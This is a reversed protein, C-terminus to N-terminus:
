RRRREHYTLVKQPCHLVCQPEGDCLDCTRATRTREDIWIMGLHCAKVCVGCGDCAQQDVVRAGTREDAVIAGRPCALLCEPGTCQPCVLITPHDDAFPDHRVTLLARSPAVQGDHVLSCVMECDRCGSCRTDDASLHGSAPIPVAVERSGAGSGQGGIVYTRADDSVAGEKL